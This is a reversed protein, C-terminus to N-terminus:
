KPLGSARWPILGCIIHLMAIFADFRNKGTSSSGCCAIRQVFGSKMSVRTKALPVRSLCFGSKPPCVHAHSRGVLPRVAASDQV